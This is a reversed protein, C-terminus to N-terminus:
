EASGSDTESDAAATKKEVKTNIATMARNIGVFAWDRIGSVARECLQPIEKQQEESFVPKEGTEQTEANEIAKM